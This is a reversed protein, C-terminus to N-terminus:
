VVSSVMVFILALPCVLRLVWTLMRRTVPSAQAFGEDLLAAPLRWGVFVATAFASIPLLINSTVYDIVDFFIRDAFSPIAGLPHWDAAVNFSLLSGLGVLATAGITVAVAAPRRLGFKQEVFAVVPEIGALSPTLAAVVLLFFFLTGFLQGGPMQAFAAPLVLFVLDPGQAPDLGFKFVLPFVVVSALVSVILISMAILTASRLLSSDAPAYAGYAIMMAMGVGTAYFAQGVALLMVEGDLRSFDPAFAFSLGRQVDGTALAYVVLIGLLGFLLPARWRNVIELGRTVGRGSIFGLLLLFAAYWAAMQWPDALFAQWDSKLMAPTAGSLRGSACRWAYALVWGAILTYYSIILFTSVTGLIGILNWSRSGGVEAAVAGAAQAPYTRSRRGIFFEAALLPIAIAVCAIVFVMIFASGGQTGVLYPFRWISGLGVAAGITALYFAFGSSWRSAAGTM